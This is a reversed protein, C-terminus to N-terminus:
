AASKKIIKRQKRNADIRSTTLVVFFQTVTSSQVTVRCTCAVDILLSKTDILTADENRGHRLGKKPRLPRNFCRFHDPDVRVFVLLLFDSFSARSRTLAILSPNTVARGQLLGASPRPACQGYIVHHTRAVNASPPLRCTSLAM